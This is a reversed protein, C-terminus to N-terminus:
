KSKGKGFILSQPHRELTEALDRLARSAKNFEELARRLEQQTPSDTRLVQELSALTTQAQALTAQAQPLSQQDLKKMLGTAETLAAKLAPLSARLGEGIEELPLKQLREAFQTLNGVLNTMAGMTSPITPLEEYKGYREIGRRPAEPHFALDVFLSGTLLSATKLQARLGRQVLGKLISKSSAGPKGPPAFREPELAILVPIKGFPSGPHFELKFDEVQGVQIGQYEVPAGRTLGRVSENFNVVFYHRDLVVKEFSKERNAYLWFVQGPPAAGSADLSMPNEFSIGGLLLDVLSDSHMRLGNGDVTVDVGGADWFRSDMRVLSDYPADIFIGIAVSGGQKELDFKVVEGVRIQRYHVPSGLNLSGLKEARLKFLAGNRETTDISPSELGVYEHAFRTAEGPKGPDMGIYAGSLLTGLGSIGSTGIRARVVWFRSNESLLGAAERKLEATVVVHKHNRSLNIATVKGIDVDKHRLRTQGAELGEAGQFTITITPGTEAYARVAMWAGILAALLPILWVISPRRRVQIRAEPLDNPTPPEARSDLPEDM